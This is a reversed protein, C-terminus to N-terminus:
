ILFTKLHLKIHSFIHLKQKIHAANLLFSGYLLFSAFLLLQLSCYLIICFYGPSFAAFFDSHATVNWRGACLISLRWDPSIIFSWPWCPKRFNLFHVPLDPRPTEFDVPGAINESARAQQGHDKM